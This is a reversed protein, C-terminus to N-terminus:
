KRQELRREDTFVAKRVEEMKGRIKSFDGGSQKV